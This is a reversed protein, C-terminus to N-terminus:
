KPNILPIRSARQLDIMMQIRRDMQLFMASKKKSLVKEFNPLYKRRLDSIAKDADFLNNIYDTAQMDNMSDYHAAYEKIQAYRADLVRSVEAIYQDYVPWFKASEETTLPLNAAVVQRRQDRIDQQLLKIEQDTIAQRSAQAPVANGPNTMATDALVAAPVGFLATTQITAIIISATRNKNM